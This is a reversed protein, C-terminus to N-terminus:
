QYFVASVYVHHMYVSVQAKNGKACCAPPNDNGIPDV